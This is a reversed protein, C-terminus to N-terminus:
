LMESSMDIMTIWACIFLCLNKRMGPTVEALLVEKIIKHKLIVEITSVQSAMKATIEILLYVILLIGTQLCMESLSM